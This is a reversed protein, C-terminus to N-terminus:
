ILSLGNISIKEIFDDGYGFLSNNFRENGLYFRPSGARIDMMVREEPEDVNFKIKKYIYGGNYRAVAEMTYREALYYFIAAFIGGIGYSPYSLIIGVGCSVGYYRAKDAEFEARSRLIDLFGKKYGFISHFYPIDNYLFVPRGFVFSSIFIINDDPLEFRFSEKAHLSIGLFLFLAIIFM